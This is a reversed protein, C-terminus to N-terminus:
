PEAGKFTPCRQLQRAVWASPIPRLAACRWGVGSARIHVCEICLHRDDGERDRLHLLDALADAEPASLGMREFAETRAAMRSLEQGTAPVYGSAILRQEALAELLAAKHQAVLPTLRQVAEAPGTLKLKGPASGRRLIVGARACEVLVDGPRVAARSM